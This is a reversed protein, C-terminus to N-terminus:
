YSKDNENTKGEIRKNKFRNVENPLGDKVITANGLNIVCEKLNKDVEELDDEYPNFSFKIGYGAYKLFIHVTTDGEYTNWIEVAVHYKECLRELEEFWLNFERSTM